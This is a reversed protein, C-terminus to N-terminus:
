APKIQGSLKGSPESVVLVARGTGLAKAQAQSVVV